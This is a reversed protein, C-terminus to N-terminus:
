NKFSLNKIIMKDPNYGFVVNKFEVSGESELNIADTSDDLEPLSDILLRTAEDLKKAM